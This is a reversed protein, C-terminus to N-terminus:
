GDEDPRERTVGTVVDGDDVHTDVLGRPRGGGPERHHREALLM